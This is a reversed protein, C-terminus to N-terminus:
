LNIITEDFTSSNKYYFYSHFYSHVSIIIELYIVENLMKDKSSTLIGNRKVNFFKKM